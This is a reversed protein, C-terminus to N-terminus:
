SMLNKGSGKIDSFVMQHGLYYSGRMLKYIIMSKKNVININQNQSVYPSQIFNFAKQWEESLIEGTQLAESVAKRSKDSYDPIMPRNQELEEKVYYVFTGDTKYHYEKKEKFTITNM